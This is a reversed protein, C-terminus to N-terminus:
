ISKCPHIHGWMAENTAGWFASEVMGKNCWNHTHFHWKLTRNQQWCGHPSSVICLPWDKLQKWLRGCVEDIPHSEPVHPIEVKYEFRWIPFMKRNRTCWPKPDTVTQNITPVTVIDATAADIPNTVVSSTLVLTSAALAFIRM